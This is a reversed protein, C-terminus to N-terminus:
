GSPSEIFLYGQHYGVRTVHPCRLVSSGDNLKLFLTDYPGGGDDDVYYGEYITTKDFCSTCGFVLLLCLLSRVLGM